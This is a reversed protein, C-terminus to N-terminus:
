PRAMARQVRQEGSGACPCSHLPSPTFSHARSEFCHSNLRSCLLLLLLLLPPVKEGVVVIANFKLQEAQRIRRHHLAAAHRKAHPPLLAPPPLSISLHVCVCVCVCVCPADRMGHSPPTTSSLRQTFTAGGCQM